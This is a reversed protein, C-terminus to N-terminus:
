GAGERPEDEEEERFAPDEGPPPGGAPFPFNIVKDSLEALPTGAVPLATIGNDKLFKSIAGMEPASLPDGSELRALMHRALLEHAKGLTEEATPGAM